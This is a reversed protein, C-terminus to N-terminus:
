IRETCTKNAEVETWGNRFEPNAFSTNQIDDDYELPSDDIIDDNYTASRRNIRHSLSRKKRTNYYCSTVFPQVSNDNEKTESSCHQTSETLNCRVTYFQELNDTPGAEKDCVCYQSVTINVKTSEEMYIVADDYLFAPEKIFLQENPTSLSDIRWSDAFSKENNIPGLDRHTFDDSTDKTLSPVGCLGRAEDIDYISPKISIGSIFKSYQSVTFKIETGTQLTIKYTNGIHEISMDNDDCTLLETYPQQLLYKNNRSIKACTRLVFLSGRSRIAIGCHCSSGSWGFGCNTLLAHVWYPGRDNRYLVFEGVEMYHYLRGDFTTIHPDNYSQCLRATLVSDKDLVTVKIEPIKVDKWIENFASISKTSIRIFTSRGQHNYLGDSSGYVQLYKTENWDLNGLKIGCFEAEFVIDRKAINNLCSAKNKGYKPQFIFFNQACKTRIDPHSAICSVPVTSTM